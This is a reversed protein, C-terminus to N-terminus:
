TLFTTRTRVYRARPNIFIIFIFLTYAVCFHCDVGEDAKSIDWPLQVIVFLKIFVLVFRVQQMKNALDIM